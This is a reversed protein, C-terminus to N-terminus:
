LAFSPPVSEEKMFNQNNKGNLIIIVNSNFMQNGLCNFNKFYKM